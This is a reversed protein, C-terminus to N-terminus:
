LKTVLSEITMVFEGETASSIYTEIGLNGAYYQQIYLPFGDDEYLEANNFYPNGLYAIGNEKVLHYIRSVGNFTVQFLTGIQFRFLDFDDTFGYEADVASYYNVFANPYKETDDRYFPYITLAFTKEVDNIVYGSYLPVADSAELYVTDEKIIDTNCWTPANIFFSIIEETDGVSDTLTWEKCEWYKQTATYLLYNTHFRWYELKGFGTLAYYEVPSASLILSGAGMIYAYPYKEKDWEPLAPLLIGNYLYAIAIRKVRQGAIRRGSLWGLYMSTLDPSPPVSVAIPNSAALYIIDDENIIDHNSWIMTNEDAYIIVISPNEAGNSVVSWEMATGIVRYAIYRTVDQLYISNKGIEENYAMVLPTSCLYLTYVPKALLESTNIVAYPYVTKDWEPLAPLEVGNYLYNAM